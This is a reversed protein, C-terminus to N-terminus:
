SPSLQWHIWPNTQHPDIALTLPMEAAGVVQRQLQSPTVPEELQIGITPGLGNGRRILQRRSPWHRGKTTAGITASALPQDLTSENILNTAKVFHEQAIAKVVLVKAGANLGLTNHHLTQWCTGKAHNGV